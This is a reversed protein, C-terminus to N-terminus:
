RQVALLVQKNQEMSNESRLDDGSESPQRTSSVASMISFLSPDMVSPKDTKGVSKERASSVDSIPTLMGSDLHNDDGGDMNIKTGQDNISKKFGNRNLDLKIKMSNNLNNELKTSKEDKDRCTKDTFDIIRYTMRPENIEDQNIENQINEVCEDESNEETDESDAVNTEVRVDDNVVSQRYNRHIYTGKQRDEQIFNFLNEDPINEAINDKWTHKTYFLVHCAALVSLGEDNLKNVNAGNDLLCNIVDRHCNVQRAFHLCKVIISLHSVVFSTDCHCPKFCVISNSLCHELYSRGQEM